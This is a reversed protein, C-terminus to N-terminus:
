KEELINELDEEEGGLDHIIPHDKRKQRPKKKVPSTKKKVLSPKLEEGGSPEKEHTLCE